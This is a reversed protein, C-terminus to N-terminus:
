SQRCFTFLRGLSYGPSLPSATIATDHSADVFIPQSLPFTVNNTVVSSNVSTKFETLRTQTLRSVLEQVYGIGQASSSPNGPGYSYWFNVDAWPNMKLSLLQRASFKVMGINMGKGSKRLSFIVSHLIVLRSRRYTWDYTHM